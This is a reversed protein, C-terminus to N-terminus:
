SFDLFHLCKRSYAAEQMCESRRYTEGVQNCTPGVSGIHWQCMPKVSRCKDPQSTFFRIRM